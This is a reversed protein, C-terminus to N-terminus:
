QIPVDILFYKNESNSEQTWNYWKVNINPHDPQLKWSTNSEVYWNM